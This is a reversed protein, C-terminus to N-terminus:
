KTFCRQIDVLLNPFKRKVIYGAIDFVKNANMLIVYDSSAVIDKEAIVTVDAKTALVVTIDVHNQQPVRTILSKILEAHKASWSVNKDLVLKIFRPKLSMVENYLIKFSEMIQEDTFGRSFSKRLDRVIGDDCVYLERGELASIITLLANYGDVVVRSNEISSVHKSKVKAVDEDSHVCRLLLVRESSSLVYRSTILDLSAKQSYGRNLLYKYDKAAECVELKINWKELM